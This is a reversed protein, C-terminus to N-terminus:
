FTDYHKDWCIPTLFSKFSDVTSLPLGSFQDSTIEIDEELKPDYGKSLGLAQVM